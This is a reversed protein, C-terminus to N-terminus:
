QSVKIRKLAVLGESLNSAGFVFVFSFYNKFINLLALSVFIKRRTIDGGYAAYVSFTVFMVTPVSTVYLSLNIARIM